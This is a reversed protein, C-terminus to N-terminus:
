VYWDGIVPLLRLPFLIELGLFSEARARHHKLRVALHLSVINVVSPSLWLCYIGLLRLAPLRFDSSTLM